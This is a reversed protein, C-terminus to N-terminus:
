KIIGKLFMVNDRLDKELNVLNSHIANLRPCNNDERIELIYNNIMDITCTYSYIDELVEIATERDKKTIRKKNGLINTTVEM